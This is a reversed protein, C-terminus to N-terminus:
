TFITSLLDRYNQVEEYTKKNLKELDLLKALKYVHNLSLSNRQKKQEQPMKLNLHCKQIFKAVAEIM